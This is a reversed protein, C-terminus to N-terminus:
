RIVRRIVRKGSNQRQQVTRTPVKRVAQKVPTQRKSCACAM